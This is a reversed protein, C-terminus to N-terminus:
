IQSANLPPGVLAGFDNAAGAVKPTTVEGDSGAKKGTYETILRKETEARWNTLSDSSGDDPMTWVAVYPDSTAVVRNDDLLILAVMFQLEVTSTHTPVADLALMDRAHLEVLRATILQVATTLM